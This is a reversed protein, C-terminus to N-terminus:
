GCGRPEPVVPISIAHIERAIITVSDQGEARALEIFDKLAIQRVRDADAAM